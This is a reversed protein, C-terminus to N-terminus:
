RNKSQLQRIDPHRVVIAPLEDIGLQRAAELRAHGNVVVGTTTVVLPAAVLDRRTPPRIPIKAKGM